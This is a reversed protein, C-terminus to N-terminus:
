EVAVALHTVYVESHFREAIETPGASEVFLGLAEEPNAPAEAITDGQRAIDLEPFLAVYGDGDREIVQCHYFSPYAANTVGQM